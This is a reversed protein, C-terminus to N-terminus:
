RSDAMENGPASHLCWGHHAACDGVQFPGYEEIPYRGDLDSESLDNGTM